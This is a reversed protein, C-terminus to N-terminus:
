KVVSVFIFQYHINTIVNLITIFNNENIENHLIHLEEMISNIFIGKSTYSM